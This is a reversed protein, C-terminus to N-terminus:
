DGRVATQALKLSDESHIQLGHAEADGDEHPIDSSRGKLHVMEISEIRKEPKLCKYWGYALAAGGASILGQGILSKVDLGNQILDGIEHFGFYAAIGVGLFFGFIALGKKMNEVEVRVSKQGNSPTNMTGTQNRVPNVSPSIGPIGTLVSRTSNTM